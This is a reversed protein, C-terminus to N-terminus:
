RALMWARESDLVLQLQSLTVTEPRTVMVTARNGGLKIQQVEYGMGSATQVIDLYSGALPDLFRGNNDLVRGVSDLIANLQEYEGSQLAQNASFLMSELALNATTEPHRSFDATANRQEAVEPPPLWANLYYASPDYALQYHRMVEYYRLTASLNSITERDRPLQALYAMWDAEVEELSRDFFFHLNADIAGSQSPADGATTASYFPRVREWGYTEVLYSIFGAAELYGIEHVVSRFDDMVENVPVYRGLEVLAAMRKGLDEQQYHGGAVWVALGESLFASKDPAFQQEILHVAEHVLVEALGGGAYNRDLYSVVMTDLAYGGQGIVRDILYVDYRGVLPEVLKNSAQLFADDVQQLLQPLDRHAATGSVVHVACCNNEVLLWNAEAEKKPLEAPSRVTVNVSVRNNNPNEDGIQIGDYPDLIATLAHVGVQEGTDWIWQYLGVTQGDLKRWNLNGNVLEEGNLLIRVDVDNPALGRPVNPAVEVSVLDGAYVNPVPFISIDAPGISLDNSQPPPPPASSTPETVVSSPTPSPAVEAPGTLTAQGTVESQTVTPQRSDTAQDSVAPTTQASVPTEMPTVNDNVLGCAVAIVGCATIIGIRVLWSLNRSGLM